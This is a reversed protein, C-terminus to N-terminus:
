NVLQQAEEEEAKALIRAQEIWDAFNLKRWNPPNLLTRLEEPTRAALEAFSTIGIRRLEAELKPGIGRITALGSSQTSRLRGLKERLDRLEADLRDREAQLSAIEGEKSEQWEQERRALEHRWESDADNKATVLDDLQARLRRSEEMLGAEQERRHAETTGLQEIMARLATLDADRHAVQERLTTLMLDQNAAPLQAASAGAPLVLVRDEPMGAGGPTAEEFYSRWYALDIRWELFWGLLFGLLLAILAVIITTGM